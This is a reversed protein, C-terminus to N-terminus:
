QCPEVGETGWRPRGENCWVNVWKIANDDFNVPRERINLVYWRSLDRNFSSANRFMSDMNRITSLNWNDILANFAENHEFMGKMSLVNSVDWDLVNKTSGVVEGDEGAPLGNNWSSGFFTYSMNNIGSVDWGNLNDNFSSDAFMYGLDSLNSIDLNKIADSKELSLGNFAYRGRKLQGAIWTPTKARTGPAPQEVEEPSRGGIQTLIKIWELNARM